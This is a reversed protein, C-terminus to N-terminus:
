KPVVCRCVESFGRVRLLKRLYSENSVPNGKDDTMVGQLCPANFLFTSCPLLEFHHSGVHLRALRVQFNRFLWTLRPFYLNFSLGDDEADNGDDEDRARVHRTLTHLATLEQIRVEDLLGEGCYVMHSSVLVSFALALGEDLGPVKSSEAVVVSVRKEDSGKVRIVKRWLGIVVQKDETVGDGHPREPLHEEVICSQSPQDSTSQPFLTRQLIERRAARSAEDGYFLVVCVPTPLATLVERASTCIELGKSKSFVLWPIQPLAKAQSKDLADSQLRWSADCCSSDAHGGATKLQQPLDNNRPQLACCRRHARDAEGSTPTSIYSDGGPLLSACESTNTAMRVSRRLLEPWGKEKSSFLNLLIRCYEDQRTQVVPLL